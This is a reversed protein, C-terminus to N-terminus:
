SYLLSDNLYKLYKRLFYRNRRCEKETELEPVIKCAEQINLGNKIRRLIVILIELNQQHFKLIRQKELKYCTVFYGHYTTEKDELIAEHEEQSKSFGDLKERIVKIVLRIAQIEFNIDVPKLLSDYSHKQQDFISGKLFNILSVNAHTWALKFTMLDNKQAQQLQNIIWNNQKLTELYPMKLIYYDYKNNEIAMGYELLLYRNTVKGYLLLIQSGSEFQENDSLKVEFTHFRDDVTEPTMDKFPNETKIKAEEKFKVQDAETFDPTNNPKQLVQDNYQKVQCSYKTVAIQILELSKRADEVSIKNELCEQLIDQIEMSIKNIFFLEFGNRSKIYQSLSSLILQAKKDIEEHKSVIEFDGKFADGQSVFDEELIPGTCEDSGETTPQDDLEEQTLEKGKTPDALESEKFMSDYQLRSCNHNLFEGFPILTVYKTNRMWGFKRSIIQTWIWRVNDSTFLSVDFTEPFKNAFEIIAKEERLYVNKEQQIEKIFDEDELANIEEEPWFCLYDIEHPLNAIMQYWKSSKGKAHEYLMYIILMRYEWAWSVSPLFYEINKEFLDKLESFYADTTTLILDRPVQLIPQGPLIKESTLLGRYPLGNKLYFDAFTLRRAKIGNEIYYNLYELFSEEQEVKVAKPDHKYIETRQRLHKGISDQNTIGLDLNQM